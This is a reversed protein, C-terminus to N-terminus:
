KLRWSKGRLSGRVLVGRTLFLYGHQQRFYSGSPRGKEQVLSCGNRQWMLGPRFSGLPQGPATVLNRLLWVRGSGQGIPPKGVWFGVRIARVQEFATWFRAM